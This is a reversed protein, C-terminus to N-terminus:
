KTEWSICNLVGGKKAIENINVPVITKSFIGKAMSIAKEDTEFNFVPFFIYKDTELFNLYCGLASIGKSDFYPFEITNIAHNRLVSTIQKELTNKGSVRNGLVTNEDLFRVREGWLCM